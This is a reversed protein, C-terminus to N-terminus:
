PHIISLYINESDLFVYFLKDDLFLNLIKNWAELVVQHPFLLLITLCYLLIELTQFSVVLKLHLAIIKFLM